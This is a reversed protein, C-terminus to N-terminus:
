VIFVSTIAEWGGAGNVCLKALDTDYVMLGEAPTAIAEREATTMRPPLFGKDTSQLDLKASPDPAAYSGYDGIAASGSSDMGLAGNGFFSLGDPTFAMIDLFGGLGDGLIYGANGDEGVYYALGFEPSGALGMYSSLVTEDDAIFAHVAPGYGFFDGGGAGLSQILQSVGAGGLTKALDAIEQLTTKVYEAAQYVMALETGDLPDAPTLAPFDNAGGLGNFATRIFNRLWVQEPQGGRFAAQLEAETVIVPDPAEPM